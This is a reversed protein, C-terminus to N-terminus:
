NKYMRLYKKLVWGNRRIAETYDFYGVYVWKHKRQILTVKRNPYLTAVSNSKMTPKAKIDVPREVFYYKSSGEVPLPHQSNSILKEISEAIRELYATQIEEQIVMRGQLQSSTKSDEHQFYFQSLTILINIVAVILALKRLSDRDQRLTDIKDQLLQEGLKVADTNKTDSEVAETISEALKRSFATPAAQVHAAAIQSALRHVDNFFGEDHHAATFSKSFDAIVKLQRTDLSSLAPAIAPRLHELQAQQIRSFESIVKLVQALSTNQFEAGQVYNIAKQVSSAAKITLQAFSKAIALIDAQNPLLLEAFRMAIEHIAKEIAGRFNDFFEADNTEEFARFMSKENQIFARAIARLDDDSLKAFEEYPLPPSVLQQHLIRTTYERGNKVKRVLEIALGSDNSRFHKLEIEGLTDIRLKTNRKLSSARIPMPIMMVTTDLYSTAISPKELHAV